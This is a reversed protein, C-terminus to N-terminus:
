SLEVVPAARNGAVLCVKQSGTIQYTLQEATKGEGTYVDIHWDKIGGGVDDAVFQDFGFSSKLGPIILQAGKSVVRNDVAVVGIVLPKGKANLPKNRRHWQKSYFGLYWGFRTRGWGEMKVVKLFDANLSHRAGSKLKINSKNLSLFDSEIPTYFGTIKWSDNCDLKSQACSNLLTVLSLLLLQFLRSM